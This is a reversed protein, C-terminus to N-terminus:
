APISHILEVVRTLVAPDTEPPVGHGLNLVHGPAGSGAAIVERVHAELVEWPASLLAPDINGQLPVTGGLRRNAEDLPLRYDVGVVDVGVDRMAVLLESTGTGFHVLPAGLHRVHDLARASAPAVYKTYDALGLSGAWSDFLQGASAGAELQARLFMGSADAAWNALATWSEPDAHMMTRPGLHDRSPKGEVMYAALTFPAGAFGILPTTGLEAVTLRVAERIPELAEWTLQPLAAVDAATRVPKDLVPGVGPVIDVGVGALKLPIVIDSFFIAADVDHRRVPQLTIESALEPRLCSDLMAVGERVKLYEPLSRGAQRMFWVPRRSPKRGRYAQILPSDATRGDMLPHSADLSSAVTGPAGTASVSNASVSHPLASSSTM